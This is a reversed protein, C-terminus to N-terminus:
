KTGFPVHHGTVLDHSIHAISGVHYIHWNDEKLEMTTISCNPLEFIINDISGDIMCKSKSGLYSTLVSIYLSHGFIVLTKNQYKKIYDLFEMINKTFEKWSNHCVIGDNIDSQSLQKSPKTYENLFSLNQVEEINDEYMHLFTEATQMTRKFRSTFVTVKRNGLMKSLYKGTEDGQAVGTPTLNPNGHKNINHELNDSKTHIYHNSESEGHRIFILM